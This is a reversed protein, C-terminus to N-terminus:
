IKLTHINTNEKEYYLRIVMINNILVGPVFKQLLQDVYM